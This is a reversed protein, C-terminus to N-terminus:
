RHSPFLLFHFSLLVHNGIVSMQLLVLAERSLISSFLKELVVCLLPFLTDKNRGCSLLGCTASRNNTSLLRSKSYKTM